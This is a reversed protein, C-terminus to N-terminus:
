GTRVAQETRLSQTHSADPQTLRKKGMQSPNKENRNIPEACVLNHSTREKIHGQMFFEGLTKMRPQM